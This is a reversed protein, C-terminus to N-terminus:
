TYTGREATFLVAVTLVAKAAEGEPNVVRPRILAFAGKPVGDVWEVALFVTKDSGGLVTVTINSKKVQFLFPKTFALTGPEASLEFDAELVTFPITANLGNADTATLNYSGVTWDAQVISDGEFSGSPETEVVLVMERRTADSLIVQVPTGEVATFFDGIVKVEDGVYANEPTATITTTDTVTFTATGTVGEEDMVTVAYTGVPLTPIVGTLIAEGIV